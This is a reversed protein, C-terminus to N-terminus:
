RTTVSAHYARLGATVLAVKRDFLPEDNHRNNNKNIEEQFQM